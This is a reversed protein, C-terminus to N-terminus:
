PRVEFVNDGKAAEIALACVALTCTDSKDASREILRTLAAVARGLCRDAEPNIGQYAALALTAWGLSYPSPCAAVRRVLWDLSLQVSRQNSDSRLALLAIATADLHAAMPVGFAIGNGSNWGGEPCARDLLMEIALVTRRDVRAALDLSQSRARKLAIVAFATPIVWSVTGPVWSWGFKAPNFSVNSDITRFRWRWLWHAERPLDGLLWIMANKAERSQERASALALLALSTVWCGSRDDDALAAWSGDSNQREKIFRLGRDSQLRSTALLALVALCTPETAIQAGQFGWGGKDDQCAELRLRLADLTANADM